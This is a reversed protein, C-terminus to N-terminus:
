RAAERERMVFDLTVCSQRTQKRQAFVMCSTHPLRPQVSFTAAGSLADSRVTVRAAGEGVSRLVGAADVALVRPDASLWTLPPPGDLMANGRADTVLARLARSAGLTAFATDVPAIALRAPRQRVELVVSDAVPKAYYGAPRVGTEGVAIEAVLTVRGNGVARYIGEGDRVLVGAPRLTWRLPVTPLSAGHVDLVRAVVRATDGLSALPGQADATLVLGTPYAGDPRLPDAPVCAALASAALVAAARPLFSHRPMHTTPVRRTM